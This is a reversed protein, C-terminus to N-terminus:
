EYIGAARRHEDAVRERLEQPELVEVRSGYCLPWEWKGVQM